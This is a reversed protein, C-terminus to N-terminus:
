PGAARSSSWTLLRELPGRGLRLRWVSALVLASVAFRAWLGWGGSSDLEGIRIAVIQATYVTLAMAGVSAMPYTARPLRDAVVLCMGIVAVAVGASGVVEFTTGSHPEAGAFWAPDWEGPRGFGAEIGAFRRAPGTVEASLRGGAYGLVAAGAGGVVLQARV